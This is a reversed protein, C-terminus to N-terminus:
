KGRKAKQAKELMAKVHENGAEFTLAMQFHSVAQSANGQELAQAGKQYYQRGQPTKGHTTESRQKKHAAEAEALQLRMPGQADVQQDYVKRRLPDRLVCYAETVRKSIQECQLRLDGVLHRNVDPHFARSTRYYAQKLEIKTAGKEVHLLQYYSLEDVIKSLAEIELPPLEPV